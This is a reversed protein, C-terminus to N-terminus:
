LKTGIVYLLSILVAWLQPIHNRQDNESLIHCCFTNSNFNVQITNATHMKTIHYSHLQPINTNNCSQLFYKLKKVKPITLKSPMKYQKIQFLLDSLPLEM